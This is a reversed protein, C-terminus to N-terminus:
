AAVYSLLLQGVRENVYPTTGAFDTARAGWAYIPVPTGTHEGEDTGSLEWTVNWRAALVDSIGMEKNSLILNVEATTLNTIGTYTSMKSRVNAATPTKKIAGWIFETSATQGRMGGVDLSNDVELGGCEHDATVIILTDTRTKAWDYAAKIAADFALM